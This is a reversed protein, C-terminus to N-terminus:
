LAWLWARILLNACIGAGVDDAVVGWGGPLKELSRYPPLKWADLVRFLIFGAALVAGTRPLFAVAAWFGVVEDLVIQPSDHGGFSREARGCLWVSILISAALVVALAAGGEPLFPLLLLGEATGILGAGTFKKSGSM